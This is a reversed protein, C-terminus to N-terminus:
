KLAGRLSRIVPGALIGGFSGFIRLALGISVQVHDKLAQFAFVKRRHDPECSKGFNIVPVRHSARIRDTDESRVQGLDPFQGQLLRGIARSIIVGTSFREKDPDEDGIMGLVDDWRRPFLNEIMQRFPEAIKFSLRESRGTLLVDRDHVLRRLRDVLPQGARSEQGLPDCNTRFNVPIPRSIHPVFTVM